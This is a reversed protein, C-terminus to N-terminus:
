EGRLKKIRRLRRREEKPLRRAPGKKDTKDVEEEEEMDNGKIDAYLSRALIDSFEESSVVVTGNSVAYGAIERDSTVITLGERKNRAMEKLIHDAQEGDRSFVVEIGKHVERSRALRGSRTGDFVVTVRTRRNSPITRRYIEISQLLEKRAGELDASSLGMGTTVGILNYGDIAIHTGM